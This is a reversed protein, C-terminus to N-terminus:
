LITVILIGCPRVRDGGSCQISLDMFSTGFSIVIRVSVLSSRARDGGSSQIFLDM